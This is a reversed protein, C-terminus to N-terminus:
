ITDFTSSHLVFDYKSCHIFGSRLVFLDLGEFRLDLCTWSETVATVSPPFRRYPVDMRLLVFYGPRALPQGHVTPNATHAPLRLWM